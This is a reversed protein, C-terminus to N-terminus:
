TLLIYQLTIIQTSEKRNEVVKEHFIMQSPFIKFRWIQRNIEKGNTTKMKKLNLHNYFNFARESWCDSTCYKLNTVDRTYYDNSYKLIITM